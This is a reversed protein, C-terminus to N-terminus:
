GPRCRRESELKCKAGTKRELFEKGGRGGVGIRRQLQDLAQLAGGAGVGLVLLVLGLNDLNSYSPIEHNKSSKREHNTRQMKPDNDIRLRRRRREDDDNQQPGEAESESRRSKKAVSSVAWDQLSM